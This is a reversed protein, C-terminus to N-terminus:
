QRPGIMVSRVIISVPRPEQGTGLREPVAADPVRLEFDLTPGSTISALPDLRLWETQPEGQVFTMTGLPFDEFYVEVRQEEAGADPEASATLFFALSGGSPGDSAFTLRAFQGLIDSGASNPDSFGCVANQDASNEAGHRFEMPVGSVYAGTVEREFCLTSHRIYYNRYARDVNPVQTLFVVYAEFGVLVTIALLMAVRALAGM